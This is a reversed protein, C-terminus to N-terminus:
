QPAVCTPKAVALIERLKGDVINFADEVKARFTNFDLISLQTLHILEGSGIAAFHIICEHENSQLFSIYIQIVKSGSVPYSGDSNQLFRIGPLNTEATDPNINATTKAIPRIIILDPCLGLAFKSLWM